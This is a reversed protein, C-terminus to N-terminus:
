KVSDLDIHLEPRASSSNNQVQILGPVGSAVALVGPALGTVVDVDPGVINIPINSGGGVGLPSSASANTTTNPVQRGLQRVEGIIDFVSRNREGKPVLQVSINARSDGGGIGSGGATVSSFVAVVEPIRM